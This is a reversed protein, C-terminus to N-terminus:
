YAEMAPIESIVIDTEAQRAVALEHPDNPKWLLHKHGEKIRTRTNVSEIRGPYCYYFQPTHVLLAELVSRTNYSAGFIRDVNVPQDAKLANALRWLMQSSITISKKKM